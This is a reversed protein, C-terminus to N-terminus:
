SCGNFDCVLDRKRSSPSFSLSTRKATRGIKPAYITEPRSQVIFLRGTEGDKAWEIDQPRGYHEEIKCAWKALILIEQDKLSFKLRDEKPVNIEKM